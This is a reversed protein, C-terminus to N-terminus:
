PAETQHTDPSYLDNLKVQPSLAQERQTAFGGWDLRSSQESM